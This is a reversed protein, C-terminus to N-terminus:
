EITRLITGYNQIILTLFVTMKLYHFSYTSSSTRSLLNTGDFQDFNLDWNENNNDSVSGKYILSIAGHEMPLLSKGIRDPLAVRYKDTLCM